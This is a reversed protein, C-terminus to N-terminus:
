FLDRGQKNANPKFECNEKIAQITKQHKTFELVFKRKLKGEQKIKYRKQTIMSPMELKM